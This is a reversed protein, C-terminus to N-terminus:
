QQGQMMSPAEGSDPASGPAPSQHLKDLIPELTPDVKLMAADSAQRMAEGAAKREEPTSASKMAQRAAIVSPDQRVQEHAAKLQQRETETLNAMGPPAHHRGGPGEGSTPPGQKWSKEGKRPEMKALIPAVAPDIAVMADHMEKRATDMTERAAKIATELAPNQQIAKDHAAKLQTKEQDSLGAMPGRGGGGAPPPPPASQDANAPSMTSNSEQASLSHSSFGAMLALALGFLPLPVRHKM